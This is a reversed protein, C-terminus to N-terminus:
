CYYAEHGSFHLPRMWQVHSVKEVSTALVPSRPHIQIKMSSYGPHTSFPDLFMRFLPVKQGVGQVAGLDVHTSM